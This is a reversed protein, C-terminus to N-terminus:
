VPQMSVKEAEKLQEASYLRFAKIAVRDDHLDGEWLDSLRGPAAPINQGKKLGTSLMTSAPLRGITNLLDGSAAIPKPNQSNVAHRAKVSVVLSYKSLLLPLERFVLAGVDVRKRELPLPAQQREVNLFEPEKWRKFVFM